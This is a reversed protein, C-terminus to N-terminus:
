RALIIAIIPVLCLCLFVGIGIVVVLSIRGGVQRDEAIPFDTDSIKKPRM